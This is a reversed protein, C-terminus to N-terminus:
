PLVERAKPNVHYRVTPRGRGLPDPTEVTESRLWSLDELLEAARTAGDRDLGRWGKRYVDRVLFPDPLDGRRIHRVLERAAETEPRVAPAYLRRAHSELYDAWALARLMEAEGVAGGQPADALHTLLALSPVLSRYKALHAELAPHDEGARLRGELRTRWEVFAELAGDDLRLCPIDGERGPEAGLGAADLGDLREFTAYARTRAEGDPWRDVDQWEGHVDPWAVLQFRQLLGDDGRGGDVAGRLYEGLPGPQISGLVAVCAAEVEVTGRSIRDWTFRGTGNWAELYFARDSGRDERDLTRLLGVLEDRSVLLGRPNERLLEGLKEVTADQTLYRRRVPAPDDDEGLAQRALAAADGKGTRIAKRVKDAGVKRTADFVLQHAEWDRLGAEYERRAAAELRELPRTTEKLAPSKMVGPRGVVAGWLNPVVLWDDRRRPRVGIQRGVVASLAVMAGVAVFDVPCQVREAIDGVWGILSEPLLLPDFDMVVPLRPLPQPDPWPGTRETAVPLGVLRAHIRASAESDV